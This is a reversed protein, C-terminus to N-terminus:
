EWKEINTLKEMFEDFGNKTAKKVKEQALYEIESDEFLVLTCSCNKTKADQSRTDFGYLDEFGISGFIIIKNLENIHEEALGLAEAIEKNSSVELDEALIAAATKFEDLPFIKFSHDEDEPKGIKFRGYKTLYDTFDAPFVFNLKNEIERIKEIPIASELEVIKNDSESAEFKLRLEQLLEHTTRM